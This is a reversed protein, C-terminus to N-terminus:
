YIVSFRTIICTRIVNSKHAGTNYLLVSPEIEAVAGGHHTHGCVIM